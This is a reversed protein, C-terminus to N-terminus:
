SNKREGVRQVGADSVRALPSLVDGGQREGASANLPRPVEVMRGSRASPLAARVLRRRPQARLAATKASAAQTVRQTLSPDFMM